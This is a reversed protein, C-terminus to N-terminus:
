PDGVVVTALTHEGVGVASGWTVLDASYEISSTGVYDMFTHSYYSRVVVTMAATSVFDIVCWGWDDGSCSFDHSDSWVRGNCSRALIKGDNIFVDAPDYWSGFMVYQAGNWRVDHTDHNPSPEQGPIHSTPLLESWV